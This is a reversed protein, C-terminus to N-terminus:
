IVRQRRIVRAPLPQSLATPVQFGRGFEVTWALGHHHQTSTWHPSQQFAQEGGERFADEIERPKAYPKPEEGEGNWDEPKPYVIEDVPNLAAAIAAAENVSALYYDSHEDITLGSVAIALESGAAVLEQTNAVGDDLSRGGEFPVGAASLPANVVGIVAPAVILAFTATGIAHYCAFFGGPMPTGPKIQPLDQSM